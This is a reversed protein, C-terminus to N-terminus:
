VTLESRQISEMASGHLDIRNHILRRLGLYFNKRKGSKYALGARKPSDYKVL